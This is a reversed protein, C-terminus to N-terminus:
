GAGPLSSWVGSKELEVSPRVVRDKGGRKNEVEQWMVITLGWRESGKM